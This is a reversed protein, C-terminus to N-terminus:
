IDCCAAGAFLEARHNVQPESESIGAGLGAFRQITGPLRRNKCTEALNLKSVFKALAPGNLALAAGEPRQVIARRM